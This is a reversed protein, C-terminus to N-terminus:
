APEKQKVPKIARLMETFEADAKPLKRFNPGYFWGLGITSTLGEFKASVGIRGSKHGRGEPGIAICRFFCGVKYTGGVKVCIDGVDYDINM